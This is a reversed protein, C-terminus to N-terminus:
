AAVRETPRLKSEDTSREHVGMFVKILRRRLDLAHEAHCGRAPCRWAVCTETNAPTYVLRVVRDCAICRLTFEGPEPRMASAM